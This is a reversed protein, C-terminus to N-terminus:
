TLTCLVCNEPPATLPWSVVLGYADSWVLRHGATRSSLTAVRAPPPTAEIPVIEREVEDLGDRLYGLYVESDGHKIEYDLRREATRRKRYLADLERSPTFFRGPHPPGDYTPREPILTEEEPEEAKASLMDCLVHHEEQSRPLEDTVTDSPYALKEVADHIFTKLQAFGMKECEDMYPPRENPGEAKNTKGKDAIRSRWTKRLPRPV